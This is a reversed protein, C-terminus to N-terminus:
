GDGRALGVAELLELANTTTSLGPRLRYDFHLPPRGDVREVTERFHFTRARRELDPAQHLTLDHSTVAGIAGADLLHRLTTRAAV